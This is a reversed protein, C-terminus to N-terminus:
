VGAGGGRGGGDEDPDVGGRRSVVEGRRAAGRRDRDVHQGVVGVGVAVPVDDGAADRDDARGRVAAHRDIRAPLDGVGGGGAPAARVREAGGDTGVGAGGRRGAGDGDDGAGGDGPGADADEAAHAAGHEVHHGDGTVGGPRRGQVAGDHGDDDRG